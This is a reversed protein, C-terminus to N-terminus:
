GGDPDWDEDPARGPTPAKPPKPPAPPRYRSFDPGGLAQLEVIKDPDSTRYGARRLREMFQPTVGVARLQVYDDVSGRLGHRAMAAVYAGTVGVAHAEGLEEASINSLGAAVMSRVYAPSVGLTKLGALEDFVVRALRPASARLAAIYEPTVGAARL